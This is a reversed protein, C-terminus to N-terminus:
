SFMEEEIPKSVWPGYKNEAFKKVMIQKALVFDKAAMKAKNYCSANLLDSRGFKECCQKFSDYLNKKTCRSFFGKEISYILHFQSSLV